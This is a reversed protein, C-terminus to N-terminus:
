LVFLVLCEDGMCSCVGSLKMGSVQVTASEGGHGVNYEGMPDSIVVTDVGVM